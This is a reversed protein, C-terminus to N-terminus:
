IHILSLDIALNDSYSLMQKLGGTIIGGTDTTIEIQPDTLLYEDVSVIIKYNGSVLSPSNYRTDDGDYLTYNASPKISDEKVKFANGGTGPRAELNENGYMDSITVAYWAEREIEPQINYTRSFSSDRICM